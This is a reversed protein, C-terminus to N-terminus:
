QGVPLAIGLDVWPIVTQHPIGMQFSYGGGKKVILLELITKVIGECDAHGM